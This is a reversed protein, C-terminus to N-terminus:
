CNKLGKQDTNDGETTSSADHWRDAHGHLDEVIRKPWHEHDTWQLKAYGYASYFWYACHEALAITKRVASLDFVGVM